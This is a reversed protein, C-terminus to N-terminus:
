EPNNGSSKYLNVLAGRKKPDPRKEQKVADSGTLVIGEIATTFDLFQSCSTDESEYIAIFKLIIDWFTM